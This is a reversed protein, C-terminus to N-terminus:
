VSKQVSYELLLTQSSLNKVEKLELKMGGFSQTFLTMGRGFLIPEITLYLTDVVGAKMFQTYISSGGCVAVEQYGEEKLQDILVAPDEQTYRVNEPLEGEPAQTSYIINLRKPLPRGVTEYTKRGMIVVGAQRTRERFFQTDEESTWTTSTQTDNEALFGDASLAAIIFCHM